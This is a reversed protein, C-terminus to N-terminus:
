GSLVRVQNAGLDVPWWLDTSKHIAAANRLALSHNFADTNASLQEITAGADTM